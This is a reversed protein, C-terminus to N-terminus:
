ILETVIEQMEGKREVLLRAGPENKISRVFLLLRTARRLLEAVTTGEQAAIDKLNEHTKIPMALNYNIMQTM